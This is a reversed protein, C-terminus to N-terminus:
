ACSLAGAASLRGDPYLVGLAALLEQPSQGGIDAGDADTGRETAWSALYRRAAVLAGPAVDSETRQTTVAMQDYGAHRQRNLWWEARDVPTCHGGTRWRIRGSVDEVPESAQAVYLVLLRIGQIVREKVAPAVGVQEYVRHRLWDADLAAGPLRGGRDEVGVVIAGDGPTNAM